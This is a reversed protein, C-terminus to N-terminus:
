FCINLGDYTAFGLPIYNTGGSNDVIGATCKYRNSMLTNRTAGPFIGVFQENFPYSSNNRIVNDTDYVAIDWNGAGSSGNSLFYNDEVM